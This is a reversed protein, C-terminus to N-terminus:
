QILSLIEIELNGTSYCMFSDGKAPQCQDPKKTDFSCEYSSESQNRGVLNGAPAYFDCESKLKIDLIYRSNVTVLTGNGEPAVYINMRGELKPRRNNLCIIPMPIGSQNKSSDESIYSNSECIKLDYFDRGIKNITSKKVNVHFHGCNVYNCANNSSFSVNIIRSEKNINNIMFFSKSLEKVLKDWILSPNQNFYQENKVINENAEIMRFTSKGPSVCGSVTIAFFIVVSGLLIKM